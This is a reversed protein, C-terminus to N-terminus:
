MDRDDQSKSLRRAAVARKIKARLDWWTDFLGFTCLISHVGVTLVLFVVAAFLFPHVKLVVLAFVLCAFGNMWYVFGLGVASNWAVARLTENPWQRDWFWMAAVLIVAWVLWESPRFTVFAGKPGASSGRRRLWTATAGVSLAMGLLIVGFLLGLSLHDWHDSYWEMARSMAVTTPSDNGGQREVERLQGSLWARSMQRMEPWVALMAAAMGGFALATAVWVCRSYSWARLFMEGLALGLAAALIYLGAAAFSGAGLLGAVGALAIMLGAQRRHQETWAVAVAHTLVFLVLPHWQFVAICVAAAFFGAVTSGSGHIKRM